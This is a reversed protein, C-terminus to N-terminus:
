KDEIVLPMEYSSILKYKGCRIEKKWEGETCYYREMEVHIVNPEDQGQKYETMENLKDSLDSWGRCVTYHRSECDEIESYNESMKGCKECVYMQKM